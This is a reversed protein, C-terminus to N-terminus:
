CVTKSRGLTKATPTTDGAAAAMVERKPIAPVSSPSNKDETSIV